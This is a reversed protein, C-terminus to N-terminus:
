MAGIPRGTIECIISIHQFTLTQVCFSLSVAHLPTSCQAGSNNFVGSGQGQCTVARYLINYMGLCCGHMVNVMLSPSTNYDASSTSGCWPSRREDEMNWHIGFSHLAVVYLYLRSCYM